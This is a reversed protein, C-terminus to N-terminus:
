WRLDLQCEPHCPYQVDFAFLLQNEVKSGTRFLEPQAGFCLCANGNVFMDRGFIWRDYARTLVRQSRVWWSDAHPKTMSFSRLDVRNDFQGLLEMSRDCDVKQQAFGPEIRHTCNHRRVRHHLRRFPWEHVPHHRRRVPGEMEQRRRIATQEQPALIVFLESLSGHGFEVLVKIAGSGGSLCRGANRPIRRWHGAM